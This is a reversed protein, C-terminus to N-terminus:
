YESPIEGDRGLSGELDREWEKAQWSKQWWVEREVEWVVKEKWCERRREVKKLVQELRLRERVTENRVHDLRSVGAIKRLMRMETAQLRSKERETLVWVECGYMLTPITVAEFVTVKAERSIERNEYVKKMAGVTQKDNWDKKGGLGGGGWRGMRM